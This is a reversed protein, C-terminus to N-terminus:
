APEMAGARAFQALMPDRKVLAAVRKSARNIRRQATSV